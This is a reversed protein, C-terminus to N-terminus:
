KHSLVNKELMDVKIHELNRKNSAGFLSKLITISDFGENNFYRCFEFDGM